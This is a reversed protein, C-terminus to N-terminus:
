SSRDAVMDIESYDGEALMCWIHQPEFIKIIYRSEVFESIVDAM